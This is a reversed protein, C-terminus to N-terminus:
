TAQRKLFASLPTTTEMSAEAEVENEAVRLKELVDDLVEINYGAAEIPLQNLTRIERYIVQHVLASQEATLAINITKPM